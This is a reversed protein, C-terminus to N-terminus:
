VTKCRWETFSDEMITLVFALFGMLVGCLVHSAWLQISEAGGSREMFVKSKMM